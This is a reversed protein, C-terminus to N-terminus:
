LTTFGYIYLCYNLSKNYKFKFGMGDFVDTYYTWSWVSPLCNTRFYEGEPCKHLLYRHQSIRSCIRPLFFFDELGLPTGSVCTWKRLSFWEPESSNFILFKHQRGESALMGVLVGGCECAAQLLNLGTTFSPRKYQKGKFICGETPRAKGGTPQHLVTCCGACLVVTQAWSLAMTIKYCKKANWMWSTSVPAQLPCRKKHKKKKELSSHLLDNTLPMDEHSTM